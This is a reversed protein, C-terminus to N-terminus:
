SAATVGPGQGGELNETGGSRRQPPSLSVKCVHTGPVGTPFGARGEGTRTQVLFYMETREAVGQPEAAWLVALFSKGTDEPTVSPVGLPIFM